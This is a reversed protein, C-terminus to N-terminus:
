LDYHILHWLGNTILNFDTNNQLWYVNYKSKENRAKMGREYEMLSGNRGNGKIEPIKHNQKSTIYTQRTVVRYSILDSLWNYSKFNKNKYLIHLFTTKHEVWFTMELCEILNPILIIEYILSIIYIRLYKATDLNM